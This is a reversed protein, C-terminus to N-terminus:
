RGAGAALRLVRTANRYVALAIDHQRKAEAAHMMEGEVSVSNGDPSSPAQQARARLIADGAGPGSGIVGAAGLHGARTVRVPMDQTERYREAFPSLDVARYGPTDANAVNQAIAEQRRGAHDLLAGAMRMIEVNQFM